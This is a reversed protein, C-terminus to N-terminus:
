RARRAGQGPRASSPRDLSLGGGPRAGGLMRGPTDAAEDDDEPESLRMPWLENQGLLRHLMEECRAVADATATLAHELRDLQTETAAAGLVDIVEVGFFMALKRANDLKIGGGAEYAQYARTTVGIVDAVAPQTM